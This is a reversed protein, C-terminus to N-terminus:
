QMRLFPETRRRSDSCGRFKWAPERGVGAVLVPYSQQRPESPPRAHVAHRTADSYCHEDDHQEDCATGPHDAPGGGCSRGRVAACDGRGRPRYRGDRVHPARHAADAAATNAAADAATRWHRAPHATDAAASNAPANAAASGPNRCGGASWNGVAWPPPPCRARDGGTPLSWRM